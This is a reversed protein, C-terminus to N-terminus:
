FLFWVLPLNRLSEIDVWGIEVLIYCLAQFVALLCFAIAILFLKNKYLLIYAAFCISAGGSFLIITVLHNYIIFSM